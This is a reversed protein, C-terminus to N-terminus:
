GTPGRETRGPRVSWPEADRNSPSVRSAVDRMTEIRLDTRDRTAAAYAVFARLRRRDRETRINNPHLWVHFVGDERSARDVGHKAAALMPDVWVSELVRRPWGEFGYLYMSPPVDVLGYEDVTPTVVDVFEPRAAALLKKLTRRGKGRPGHGVGRYCTFGFAALLDRHGLANRPFVFSDYEIGVARAASTAAELEARITAPSFRTDDFLVHSFSHCAIEHDVDADVTAAVLDRGFRIDPRTTWSERERDFWGDISPHNAHVGDCTELFLHGVVAWTASVDHADFVELLTRWGSRAADMRSSPPEELDHFGWGLEADISIVVSGM